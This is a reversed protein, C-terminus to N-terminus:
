TKRKVNQMCKKLESLLEQQKGINGKVENEIDCLIEDPSKMVEYKLRPRGKGESEVSECNLCNKGLLKNVAVSVEPQRMNMTREIESSLGEKFFLFFVIVKSLSRSYGLSVLIDLLREDDGNLEWATGEKM